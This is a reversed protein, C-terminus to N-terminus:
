FSVSLRVILGVLVTPTGSESSIIQENYSINKQDGYFIPSVLSITILPFGTWSLGPIIAGCKNEFDNFCQVMPAFDSGFIHRWTWTWAIANAFKKSGNMTGNEIRENIDSDDLNNYTLQYEFVVGIRYPEDWVKSVSLVGKAYRPLGSTSINMKGWGTLHYKNIESTIQMGVAPTMHAPDPDAWTRGFLNVVIPGFPYEVECAYSLDNASAKYVGDEKTFPEYMMLAQIHGHGIPITVMADLYQSAVTKTSDLVSADTNVTFKGDDLINTDFLRASGWATATRGVTIFIKDLLIYDFYLTNLTWSMQAAPNQGSFQAEVDSKFTLIDAPRITLSCHAELAAYPSNEADPTIWRIGGVGALLSGNLSFKDIQNVEASQVVQQAEQEESVSIDEAEDFISDVDDIPETEENKEENLYITQTEPLRQAIASHVAFACLLIPLSFRFFQRM